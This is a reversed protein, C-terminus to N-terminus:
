CLAQFSVRKERVLFRIKGPFGILVYPLPYATGAVINHVAETQHTDSKLRKDRIDLQLMKSQDCRGIQNSQPFLLDMINLRKATELALRQLKYTLRNMEFHMSYIPTKEVVKNSSQLKIKLESSTAYQVVGYTRVTTQPKGIWILDGALVFLPRGEREHLKLVYEKEKVKVLSRNTKTCRMVSLQSGYDEIQVMLTLMDYYNFPTLPGNFETITKRLKEENGTLAANPKFQVKFLSKIEVSPGYDSLKGLELCGEYKSSMPTKTRKEVSRTAPLKIEEILQPENEEKEIRYSQVAEYKVNNATTEYVITIHNHGCLKDLQRKLTVKENIMLTMPFADPEILDFMLIENFVALQSITLIGDSNNILNVAIRAQDVTVDFGILEQNGLSKWSGNFGSVKVSQLHQKMHSQYANTDSLNCWCLYCGNGGITFRNNKSRCFSEVLCKKLLMVSTLRFLTKSKNDVFYSVSRM